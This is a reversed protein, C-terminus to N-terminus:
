DTHLCIFQMDKQAGTQGTKGEGERHLLPCGDQPVSCAPLGRALFEPSGCSTNLIM